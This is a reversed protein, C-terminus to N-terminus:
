QSKPEPGVVTNNVPTNNNYKIMVFKSWGDIAGVYTLYVLLLDYTLKDHLTSYIMIWTGTIGGVFQLCKTLSVDNSGKTTILDLWDLTNSTHTKYIIYILVVVFILITIGGLQQEIEKLLIITTEM